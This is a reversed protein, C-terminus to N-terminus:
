FQIKFFNLSKKQFSEVHITLPLFLVRLIRSDGMDNESGDSLLSYDHHGTVGLYRSVVKNHTLYYGEGGFEHRGPVEASEPFTKQFSVWMRTRILHWENATADM